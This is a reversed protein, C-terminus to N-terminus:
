ANEVFLSLILLVVTYALLWPGGFLMALPFLAGGAFFGFITYLLIASGLVASVISAKRLPGRLWKFCVLQLIVYVLFTFFLLNVLM